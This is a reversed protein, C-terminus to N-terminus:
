WFTCDKAKGSGNCCPCRYLKGDDYWGSGDDLEEGWMLAEGGCHHCANETADDDDYDVGFLTVENLADSSPSGDTRPLSALAENRPGTDQKTDSM